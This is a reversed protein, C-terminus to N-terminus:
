YVKNKLAAKPDFCLQVSSESVEWKDGSGGGGGGAM